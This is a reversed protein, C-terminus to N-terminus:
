LQNDHASVTDLEAADCLRSTNLEAVFIPIIGYVASNRHEQRRVELLRAASTEPFCADPLFAKSVGRSPEQGFFYLRM